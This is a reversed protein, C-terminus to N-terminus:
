GFLSFLSGRVGLYGMEERLVELETSSLKGSPLGLNMFALDSKLYALIPLMDGDSTVRLIGVVEQMDRECTGYEDDERLGERVLIHMALRPEIFDLLHSTSLVVDLQDFGSEVVESDVLEILENLKKDSDGSPARFDRLVEKLEIFVESFSKSM